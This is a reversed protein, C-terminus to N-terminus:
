APPLRPQDTACQCRQDANNIDGLVRHDFEAPCQQAALTWLQYEVHQADVICVHRRRLARRLETLERLGALAPATKFDERVEGRIAIQHSAVAAADIGISVVPTTTNAGM